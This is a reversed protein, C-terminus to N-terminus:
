RTFGTIAIAGSKGATQPSSTWAKLGVDHFFQELREERGLFLAEAKPKRDALGNDAAMVAGDASLIVILAARRKINCKGHGVLFM